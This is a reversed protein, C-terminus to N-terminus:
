NKRCMESGGNQSLEVVDVLTQLIKHKCSSCISAMKTKGIFQRVNEYHYIIPWIPYKCNNCCDGDCLDCHSINEPEVYGSNCNECINLVHTEIRM